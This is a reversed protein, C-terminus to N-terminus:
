AVRGVWLQKDNMVAISFVGPKVSIVQQQLHTIMTNTIKLSFNQRHIMLLKDTLSDINLVWGDSPVGWLSFAQFTDGHRTSIHSVFATDTAFGSSAPNLSRVM